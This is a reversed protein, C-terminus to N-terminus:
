NNIILANKLEKEINKIDGQLNVLKQKLYDSRKTSILPDQRATDWANDEGTDLVEELPDTDTLSELVNSIELELPDECIENRKLVYERVEEIRKELIPDYSNEETDYEETDYEETNEISVNEFNIYVNENTMLKSIESALTKSIKLDRLSISVHPYLKRDMNHSAYIPTESTYDYHNQTEEMKM